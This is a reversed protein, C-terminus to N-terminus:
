LLQDQSPKATIRYGGRWRIKETGREKFEATKYEGIVGTFRGGHLEQMAIELADSLVTAEVYSAGHEAQPDDIKRYVVIANESPDAFLVLGQKLQKPRPKPRMSFASKVITVLPQSM